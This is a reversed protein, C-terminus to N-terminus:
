KFGGDFECPASAYADGAGSIAAEAGGCCGCSSIRAKYKRCLAELEDMFAALQKEVANRAARQESTLLFDPLSM